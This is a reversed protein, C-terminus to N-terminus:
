NQIATLIGDDFYLYSSMNYVWQEHVSSGTTTRHIDSPKGWSAQAQAATMGIRVNRKAILECIDHDWDLHNKCAKGAPTKRFIEDAKAKDAREKEAAAKKQEPTRKDEPPANVILSIILLAVVLCLVVLCGVSSARMGLQQRCQPCVKAEVPIMTACQPCKKM